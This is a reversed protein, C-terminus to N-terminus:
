SRSRMPLSVRRNESCYDPDVRRFTRDPMLVLRVPRELFSSLWAAAGDGADVALVQDDWVTVAREGHDAPSVSLPARGPADLRLGGDRLSPRIWAMRPEGRQTLAVNDRDVILWRRDNAIGFDDLVAETLEIGACSKVPYVRLRTLKM